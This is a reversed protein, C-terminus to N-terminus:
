MFHKADPWSGEHEASASDLRNAPLLKTCVFLRLTFDARQLRQHNLEILFSVPVSHKSVMLSKDNRLAAFPPQQTTQPCAVAHTEVATAFLM